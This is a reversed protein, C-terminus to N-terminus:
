KGEKSKKDARVAKKLEDYDIWGHEDGRKLNRCVWKFNMDQHLSKLLKFKFEGQQTATGLSKVDIYEESGDLHYILFDLAYTAARETKDKYKFKPILIFKPQLEFNLIKGKAKLDKLYLYYKAEDKSDFKIGDVTIKESKYKSKVM